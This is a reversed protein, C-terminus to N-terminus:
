RGTVTAPSQADIFDQANVSKAGTDAGSGCDRNIHSGLSTESRKCKVVKTGDAAVQPETAACGALTMVSIILVGSFLKM